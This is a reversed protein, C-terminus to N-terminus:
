QCTGRYVEYAGRRILDEWRYVDTDHGAFCLIFPSDGLFLGVDNSLDTDEGTKHAIPVCGCLKGDLKHDIQQALLMPLAERFPEEQRHIRELLDAMEKPCITNELGRSSAERDFLLRRLVTKELGMGRFAKNVEEIGCLRILKNTATNDSIAIMMRCLSRIDVEVDGTILTLAGCSPMKEEETVIVRQEMSLEGRSCRELVTLLLPLKIVSAALFADEGNVSYSEGTILNRYYLGLHGPITEMEKRIAELAELVQKKM